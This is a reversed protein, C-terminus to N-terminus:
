KKREDCKNELFCGGVAQIIRYSCVHEWLAYEWALGNVHLYGKKLFLVDQLLQFFLQDGGNGVSIICNRSYQNSRYIPM